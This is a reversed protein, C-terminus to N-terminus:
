VLFVFPIFLPVDYRTYLYIITLADVWVLGHIQRTEMAVLVLASGVM